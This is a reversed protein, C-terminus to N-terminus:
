ANEFVIGELITAVIYCRDAMDELREYVTRMKMVQRVEPEERFLRAMASRMVVDTEDEIEGIQKCLELIRKANDMNSILAVADRVKETAQVCMDALQKAEPTLKQIDYEYITLAVAEGVDLIDDLRLALAHIDERDIPTIFTKHLLELTAHTLKDAEKEVAEIRRLRSPLQNLDGMLAALERAADVAKVAVENFAEFFRGERPMLRAFM